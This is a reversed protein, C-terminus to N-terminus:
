PDSSPPPSRRSAPSRRLSRDLGASVVVAPEGALALTRSRDDLRRAAEAQLQAARRWVAEAGAPSLTPGPDTM